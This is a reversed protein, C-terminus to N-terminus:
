GQEKREPPQANEANRKFRAKCFRCELRSYDKRGFAHAHMPFHLGKRKCKPCVTPKLQM